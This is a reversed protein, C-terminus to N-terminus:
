EYVKFKRPTNTWALHSFESDTSVGIVQCDINAFERRTLQKVIFSMVIIANELPQSVESQSKGVRLPLFSQRRM